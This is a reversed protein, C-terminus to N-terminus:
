ESSSSESLSNLMLLLPAIVTFTSVPEASSWSAVALMVAVTVAVSLLLAVAVCSTVILTVSTSSGGSAGAAGM